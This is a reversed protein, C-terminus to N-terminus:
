KVALKKTISADGQEIKVFYIGSSLATTDLRDGSLVLSMMKKGMVDYISINKAGGFPSVINVYGQASPNPYLVFSDQFIEDTGLEGTFIINDFWFSETAANNRGEIVLQVQSGKVLGISGTQWELLYTGTGPDFPVFEDLDTGTSDIIDIETNNTLDKVYIRLRDHGPMNLTGNGEYNGKTPDSNISLLFDLSIEPNNVGELSVVDFELIQNGDIDNMRYGNAGDSFPVSSSPKKNTVGTYVGNTLGVDPVDYPVYRAKFGLEEGISEHNVLPEGANNLLDHAVNPDGTDYYKGSRAEVEEFSTGAIQAFSAAYVLLAALLTTTRM